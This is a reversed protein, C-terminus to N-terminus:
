LIIIPNKFKSLIYKTRPMDKIDKEIYIVKRM